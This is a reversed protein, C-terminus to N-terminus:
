NIKIQNKCLIEEYVPCIVRNFRVSACDSWSARNLIKSLFRNSKKEQNEITISKIVVHDVSSIIKSNLLFLEQIYDSISEDILILKDDNKPPNNLFFFFQEMVSDSFVRHPPIGMQDLLSSINCTLSWALSYLSNVQNIFDKKTM